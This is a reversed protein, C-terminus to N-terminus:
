RIGKIIIRSIDAIIASTEDMNYASDSIFAAVYYSRGTTLHVFGVDNIAIIKGEENLDGTGTKHGLVGIDVTIPANLRDTGTSCTEMLTGIYEYEPASSRLVTDFYLLLNVMAIPTASNAYCLNTNSHMDDETSYVNISPFGHMKIFSDTYEPGGTLRFLIDCANNDSFQISYTLVENLPVRLDKIGYKDRLPSYTNDHLETAAIDITDNLSIENDICYKAVSLAQPFKYVSLMPFSRDGNVSIIDGDDSLVAVGINADKTGVYETLESSLRNRMFLPPLSEPTAMNGLMFTAILILALRMVM